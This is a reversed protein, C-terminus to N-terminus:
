LAAIAVRLKERMWRQAPDEHRRPHWSLAITLEPAEVPLEFMTLAAGRAIAARAAFGPVSAVLDSLLAIALAASGSAATLPTRRRLGLAALARDIPGEARGRRSSAVHGAAAYRAPDIPAAFIPAGRRAAGVFRDRLATQTLVEPGLAGPAGIDVDVRGERLDTADEEGEPAFVVSLGPAEALIAQALAPGLAAALDDGCRVVFRRELRAPDFIEPTMLAEAEAILAGLRPKLADARATPLFDRGARVFLPDDLAKRLRDLTRSMAPVSKNLRAAAGTVSGEALLADLAVLLNLDM